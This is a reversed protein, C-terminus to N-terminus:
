QVALTATVTVANAGGTETCEVKLYKCLPPRFGVFGSGATVGSAIDTADTPEAYTTGDNSCLYEFKCTGTGTVTYQLSFYGGAILTNIAASSANGSAAISQASFITYTKVEHGQIPM